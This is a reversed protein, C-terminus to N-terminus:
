RRPWASFSSRVGARLVSFRSPAQPRATLAFSPAWNTCQRSLLRHSAAADPQIGAVLHDLRVPKSLYDDMGAELTTGPRRCSREGDDRRDLAAAATPGRAPDADGPLGDMVPM